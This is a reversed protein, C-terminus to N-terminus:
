LGQSLTPWDLDGCLVFVEPGLSFRMSITTTIKGDCPSIYPRTMQPMGPHKMARKFYPQRSLRARRLHTIKELVAPQNPQGASPSQTVLLPGQVIYGDRNIVYLRKAEPTNLFHLAVAEFTRGSELQRGIYDIADVAPATLKQHQSARENADNRSTHWLQDLTEDMAYLDFIPRAGPRAFFWGQGFDINTDIAIMAQQETEIGELLVHAGVEHLMDVLSALVGRMKRDKGIRIAFSRDLKVIKPQIDWVRDFNSAGVGFDDLALGLKLEKLQAIGDLFRQQDAVENEVVECVLRRPNLGWHKVMAKIFQESDSNNGPAGFLAPHYNLFLWGPFNGGNLIHLARCAHDVTALQQRDIVIQFFWPPAMGKGSALFPRILAEHGVICNHTFSVIPQYVSRLIFEQWPLELDGDAGERVQRLLDGLPQPLDALFVEGTIAHPERRLLGGSDQQSLNLV